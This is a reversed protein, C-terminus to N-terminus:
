RIFGNAKGNQNRSSKLLFYNESAIKLDGGFFGEDTTEVKPLLKKSVTNVSVMGCKLKERFSLM